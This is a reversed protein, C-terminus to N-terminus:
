QELEFSGNSLIFQEFLIALIYVLIDVLGANKALIVFLSPANYKHKLYDFFNFTLFYTTLM